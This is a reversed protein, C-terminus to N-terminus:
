AAAYCIFIDILVIPQTISYVEPSTNHIIESIQPAAFSRVSNPAIAARRLTETLGKLSTFNASNRETVNNTIYKYLV